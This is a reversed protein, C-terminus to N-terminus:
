NQVNRKGGLLDKTKESDSKHEQSLERLRTELPISALKLYYSTDVPTRENRQHGSGDPLNGAIKDLLNVIEQLKEESSERNQDLSKLIEKNVESSGQIIEQIGDRLSEMKVYLFVLFFIVIGEAFSQDVSAVGSYVLFGVAVLFNGVTPLVETLGKLLAYILALLFVGGFIFGVLFLPWSLWLPFQHTKTLWSWYASLLSMVWSSQAENNVIPLSSGCSYCVTRSSLNCVGCSGCTITIPEFAVPLDM